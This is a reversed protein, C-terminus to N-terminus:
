GSGKSHIENWLWEIGSLATIRFSWEVSIREGVRKPYLTNEHSNFSNHFLFLYRSYLIPFAYLIVGFQHFIPKYYHSFCRISHDNAQFHGFCLIMKDYIHRPFKKFLIDISKEDSSKNMVLVISHLTQSNKTCVLVVCSTWEIFGDNKSTKSIMKTNKVDPM